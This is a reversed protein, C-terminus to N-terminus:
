VPRGQTVDLQAARLITDSMSLGWERATDRLHRYVEDSVDITVTGDRNERSSDVFARGPSAAGRTANHAAKTITVSAM